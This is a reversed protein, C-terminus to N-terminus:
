EKWSVVHLATPHGAKRDRCWVFWAYAASDTGGDTFSPRESLVYVAECPFERWFEARRQSELFSLRLLFGLRGWPMLMPLAHRIFAEAHAYPPNGLITDFYAGGLDSVAMSLFDGTCHLDGRGTGRMPVEPRIDCSVLGTYDSTEKVARVFNGTGSSPELVRGRGLAKTPNFRPMLGLCFKALPLPTMYADDRRRPTHKPASSM